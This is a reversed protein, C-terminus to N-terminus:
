RAGALGGADPGSSMSRSRRCRTCAIGPGIRATPWPRWRALGIRGWKEDMWMAAAAILKSAGARSSPQRAPPESSASRWDRTAGGPLSIPFRAGSAGDVTVSGGHAVVVECVIALGPRGAPTAPGAEDLRM